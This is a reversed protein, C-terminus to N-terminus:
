ENRTSKPKPHHLMFIGLRFVFSIISNIVNMGAKRRAIYGERLKNFTNIRTSAGELRYNVYPGKIYHFYESHKLYIELVFQYDSYVILDSNYLLEKYCEKHIFMSPHHYTMSYYKFLFTSPNFKRLQRRGTSLIDMRDGHFIRSSRNKKYAAVVRSIANPEYYDDSNLLGILEGRAYGIGKNMADYLGNDSESVWLDICYNYREIISISGDSSGGDIIIYEVNSYTQNRVSLITQELTKQGNLVVTIVTVLPDAIKKM